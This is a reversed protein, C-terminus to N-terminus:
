KVVHILGKATVSIPADHEWTNEIVLLIRAATVSEQKSDYVGYGHRTETKCYLGIM